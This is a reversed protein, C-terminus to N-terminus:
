QECDAFQSVRSANEVVHEFGDLSLGLRKARELSVPLVLRDIGAGGYVESGDALECENLFIIEDDGDGALVTNVGSGPYIRDNGYGAEAYDDGDGLLIVDDGELTYIEDDDEGAHIHDALASGRVYDNGRGSRVYAAAHATLSKFTDDGPGLLAVSGSHSAFVADDGGGLSLFHRTEADLYVTDSRDSGSICSPGHSPLSSTEVKNDSGTKLSLDIHSRMEAPCCYDSNGAISCRAIQTGLYSTHEPISISTVRSYKNSAVLRVAYTQNKPLDVNIRQTLEKQHRNGSIKNHYSYSDEHDPFEHSVTRFFDRTELKRINEQNKNFMQMLHHNRQIEPLRILLEADEWSIPLLEFREIQVQDPMPIVTTFGRVIGPDVNSAAPILEIKDPVPTDEAPLTPDATYAPAFQPPATNPTAFAWPTQAEFYALAMPFAQNSYHWILAESVTWDHVDLRMSLWGSATPPWPGSPPTTWAFIIQEPSSQRSAGFSTFFPPASESIARVTSTGDVRLTIQTIDFGTFNEVFWSEYRSKIDINNGIWINVKDFYAGQQPDDPDLATKDKNLITTQGGLSGIDTSDFRIVQSTSNTEKFNISQFPYAAGIFELADLGPTRFYGDIAGSAKVGPSANTPVENMIEPGVTPEVTFVGGSTRFNLNYPLNTSPNNNYYCADSHQMGIAHGFEHSLVSKLEYVVESPDRRYYSFRNTIDQNWPTVGGIYDEWLEVVDRVLYQSFDDPYRAKFNNSLRYTIDTQRHRGFDQENNIFDTCGGKDPIGAFAIAQRPPLLTLFAFTMCMAITCATFSISLKMYKKIFPRM